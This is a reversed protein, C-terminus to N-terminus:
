YFTFTTNMNGSNFLTIQSELILSLNNNRKIVLYSKVIKKRIFILLVYKEEISGRQHNGIEIM